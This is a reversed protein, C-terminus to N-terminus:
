TGASGYGPKQSLAAWGVREVGGYASSDGAESPNLHETDPESITQCLTHRGGTCPWETSYVATSDFLWLITSKSSSWPAAILRPQPSSTRRHSSRSSASALIRSLAAIHSAPTPAPLLFRGRISCCLFPPQAQQSVEESSPGAQGAHVSVHTSSWSNAIATATDVCALGRM